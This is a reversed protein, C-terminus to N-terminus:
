LSFQLTALEDNKQLDAIVDKLESQRVQRSWKKKMKNFRFKNKYLADRKEYTDGEAYIEIFLDCSLGPERIQVEVVGNEKLLTKEVEAEEAPIEKEWTKEMSNWQYGRDKLFNRQEFCNSACIFVSDKKNSDKEVYNPAWKEVIKLVKAGDASNRDLRQVAEKSIVRLNLAAYILKTYVAYFEKQHDTKGRQVRDIHHSLEHLSTLAIDESDRFANYIRILAESGVYDGNKSKRTENLVQIRFKKYLGRKGVSDEPFAADIVDNLTAKLRRNLVASQNDQTKPKARSMASAQKENGM